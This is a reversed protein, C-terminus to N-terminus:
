KIDNDQYFNIDLIKLRNKHLNLRQSYNEWQRLHQKSWGIEAAGILRPFAMYEIDNMTKVTETWLPAEVGLINEDTVGDIETSPDWDYSKKIDIYGAWFLGIPTSPNYKMDLYIRTSPSMIIQVKKQSAKVANSKTAWFQAISLNSIDANVIEDWGIIKKGNSKVIEEVRNIFKIYDEEKTSKAEDGGIHIYPGKTIQALEGIVDNIFEYTIEKEVCLSSFGVKIGTFLEPAIGDCNLEPYSALAANTHGPMDIEPIVTIYREFAYDIIEKYDDQTFFGGPDGDVATSAGHATLNPWSKIEIRWGQDDTLHLHLRNIKYLALMDIYHKVDEVPFFHRAVDLMAGRWEYRPYDKISVTRVRWEINKITNSEIEDPLLQRLTQVGYFIGNTKAAEIIINKQTVTLKYGETGLTEDEVIRLYINGDESLNGSDFVSLDFGTPTNIKGAIYQGIRRLEDNDKDVYINTNNTLRFYNNVARDYIVESPIPIISIVEPSEKVAIKKTVCSVAILMIMSVFFIRYFYKETKSISSM